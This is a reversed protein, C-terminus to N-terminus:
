CNGGCGCGSEINPNTIKFRVGGLYEISAGHVLNISHSDVFFRIGAVEFTTDNELTKNEISIRYQVGACGGPLAQIRLGVGEKTQESLIEKLKDAANETISLKNNNIEVRTQEM